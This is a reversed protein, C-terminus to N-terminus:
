TRFSQFGSFQKMMLEFQTALEEVTKAMEQQLKSPGRKPALRISEGPFVKADVGHVIM